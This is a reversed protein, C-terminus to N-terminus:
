GIEELRSDMELVLEQISMDLAKLNTIITELKQRMTLLAEKTTTNAKPQTRNQSQCIHPAGSESELIPYIGENELAKRAETRVKKELDNWKKDYRRVIEKFFNPNWKTKIGCRSCTKETRESLETRRM